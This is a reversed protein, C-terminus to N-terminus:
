SLDQNTDNKQPKYHYFFVISFVLVIPVLYTTYSTLSIFPFDQGVFPLINMNCAYLYYSWMFLLSAAFASSDIFPHDVKMNVQLLIYYCIVAFPLFLLFLLLRALTKGHEAIVFRSLVLDSAQDKYKVGTQLHPQLSFIDNIKKPSEHSYYEIFQVNDYANFFRAVEEKQYLTSLYAKEPSQSLISARYKTNQSIGSKNLSPIVSSWVARNVVPILFLFCAIFIVLQLILIRKKFLPMRYSGFYLIYYCALGHAMIVSLGTEAIVLLATLILLIIWKQVSSILGRNNFAIILIYYTVCLVIFLSVYKDSLIFLKLVILLVFPLLYLLITLVFRWLVSLKRVFREIRIPIIRLFIKKYGNVLSFFLFLSPPILYVFRTPTLFSIGLMPGIGVEKFSGEAVTPPFAYFRWLMWIKLSLFVLIALHIMIELVPFKFYNKKDNALFYFVFCLLYWTPFLVVWSKSVPNQAVMNEIRYKWFFGVRSYTNRHASLLFDNGPIINEIRLTDGANFDLLTIPEISVGAKDNIFSVISNVHLLHEDQHLFDNLLVFRSKWTPFNSQSTINLNVQAPLQSTRPLRYIEYPREKNLDIWKGKISLKYLPDGDLMWGTRFLIEKGSIVESVPQSLRPNIDDDFRIAINGLTILQRLALSPYFHYRSSMLASQNEKFNYDTKILMCGDLWTLSDLLNDSITTGKLVNRLNIFGSNLPKDFESTFSHNNVDFIYATKRRSIRQIKLTFRNIGDNVFLNNNLSENFFPNLLITNKEGSTSYFFPVQLQDARITVKGDDTKLAVAYGQFEDLLATQMNAGNILILSDSACFGTHRIYHYDANTFVEEKPYFYRKVITPWALSFYLLVITFISIKAYKYQYDKSLNNTSIKLLHMSGLLLITMLTIILFLLTFGSQKLMFPSFVIVIGIAIGVWSLWKRITLSKM